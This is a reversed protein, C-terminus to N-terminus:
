RGRMNGGPRGPGRRQQNGKPRAPVFRYTGGNDKAIRTLLDQGNTSSFGITHVVVRPVIGDYVDERRNNKKLFQETGDKFQGDTLLYIADPKLTFAFQIASLPKTQLVLEYNYLWQRLKAKNEYTPAMLGSSESNPGFMRYDKDAFLMVYFRQEPRLRDVSDILEQRCVEWGNRAMSRSGDVVFIFKVGGAKVGFFAAGGTGVGASAYGHGDDGFLLGIDGLVDSTEITGVDGLEAATAASVVEGFKTLGPDDLQIPLAEIEDLDIEDLPDDITLDAIDIDEASDIAAMLVRDTPKEEIVVSFLALLLIGVLHLITSTLFGSSRQWFAVSLVPRGTGVEPIPIEASSTSEAVPSSATSPPTAAPTPLKAAAVSTEAQPTTASM